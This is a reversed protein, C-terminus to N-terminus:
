DGVPWNIIPRRRLREMDQQFYKRYAAKVWQRMDAAWGPLAMLTGTGEGHIDEFTQADSGFRSRPTDVGMWRFNRTFQSQQDKHEPLGIVGPGPRATAGQGPILYDTNWGPITPTGAMERQAKMIQLKLLDNEYGAKTLMLAKIAKGEHDLNKDIAGGISQGMKGLTEGFMVQGPGSQESIGGAGLAYIPHVGAAQADQVRKQIPNFAAAKKEAKKNQFYDVLKGGIATAAGLIPGLM